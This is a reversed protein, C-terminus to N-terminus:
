GGLKIWTLEHKNCSLHLVRSGPIAAFADATELDTEGQFKITVVFHTAAKAEMWRTVLSYLRKPYCIVDSFFWKVGPVDKPDLGFASEQICRVNPLAEVKPDLPAKDVSIVDAGLKALAYAWGGPSGGMDLCLEGPQPMVSALTLAEWVKLYARSPPGTKDELFEVEGNPFSSTCETSALILDPEWLTWSGLPASPAPQGFVHPRFRIVPLKSQILSARRHHGSSCLVWNRQIERLHTAAQGISPAQVEIVNNWINQAFYAPRQTGRALVLRDRVTLVAPGLQRTVDAVHGKAALYLTRKESVDTLNRKRKCVPAQARTM